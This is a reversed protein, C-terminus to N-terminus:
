QSQSRSEFYWKLAAGQLVMYPASVAAINLAVNADTGHTGAFAMAWSTIKVTGYLIVMSVAHKDIDRKDIWDWFIPISSFTVAM